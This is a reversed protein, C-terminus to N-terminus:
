VAWNRSGRSGRTLIEDMTERTWQKRKEEFEERTSPRLKTYAYSQKWVTEKRDSGPVSINVPYRTGDAVILFSLPCICDTGRMFVLTQGNHHLEVDETNLLDGRESFRVWWYEEFFPEIETVKEAKKYKKAEVKYQSVGEESVIVDDDKTEKTPETPQETPQETPETPENTNNNKPEDPKLVAAFGTFDEGSITTTHKVLEYKSQDLGKQKIAGWAAKETAFPKGTSAIILEQSKTNDEPM